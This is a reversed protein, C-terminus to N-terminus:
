IHSVSHEPPLSIFHWAGPGDREWVVADFSYSMTM